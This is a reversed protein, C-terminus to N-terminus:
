SDFGVVGLHSFPYVFATVESQDGGSDWKVLGWDSNRPLRSLQRTAREDYAQSNIGPPSGPPATRAAPAAAVARCRFAILTGNNGKGGDQDGM